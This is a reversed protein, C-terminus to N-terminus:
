CMRVVSEWANGVWCRFLGLYFKCCLGSSVKNVWLRLGYCYWKSAGLAQLVLYLESTSLLRIALWLKENGLYRTNWYGTRWFTGNVEAKEHAVDEGPSNNM